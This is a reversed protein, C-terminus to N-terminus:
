RNGRGLFEVEERRGCVFREERSMKLNFERKMGSHRSMEVEKLTLYGDGWLNLVNAEVNLGYSVRGCRVQDGWIQECEAKRIECVKYSIIGGGIETTHDIIAESGLDIM